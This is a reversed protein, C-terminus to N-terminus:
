GGLADRLEAFENRLCELQGALDTLQGRLEAVESRLGALREDSLSGGRPISPAVKPPNHEQAMEEVPEESPPVAAHAYQARQRALEAPQHLNHTIVHGRGEPTLAIILKKALLSQLVPRLEPLGPIPEMRAARARLQGETQAGRLLLEIMVALEVKDVGLWDYLYHRYKSVRGYGQVIAVAGLERLRDLAPEVDEPALQMLPSRNSKQNCGTVIAALSMPYIDPTTKAKEGLVGLVRRDIAPLPQWRPAANPSGPTTPAESM